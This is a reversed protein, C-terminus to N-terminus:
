VSPTCRNLNVVSVLDLATDTDGISYMQKTENVVSVLDLATSQTELPTCRNLRM